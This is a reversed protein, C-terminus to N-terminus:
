GRILNAKRLVDRVVTQGFDDLEYRVRYVPKGAKILRTLDTPTGSVIAECEAGSITEALDRVQEGGYGLAPVVKGLHPYMRYVEAISGVAYPRPDVVVAGAREAATYAVGHSMEGHTVSPGDEVVLVRRGRLTDLGEAQIKSGATMVAAHTNYQILNYRIAEINAQPASDSKNIIFIDAKMINVLSPYYSLEHGPRHADLVTIWLTPKIFPYDNNGGDWVIVDAEREAEALVRHYDVGAYVVNGAELHPEYEEREEITCEFSDLDEVREFRQVAQRELVGYPMPHRVVVARVGAERLLGMVYRTVTSKGAGTRSATVAVVPKRSELMTSGVGLLMFDAGLALARCAREMVDMYSVDSYSFVALEVDKGRIIGELMEEHYIPIGEPYLSGSLQPPYIRGAINPIQAATFAVVEYEPNDRFFVNFNHFDHPM